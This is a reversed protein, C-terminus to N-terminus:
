RERCPFAFYYFEWAFYGENFFLLKKLFLKKRFKPQVFNLSRSELDSPKVRSLIEIGDGIIAVYDHRRGLYFNFKIKYFNFTKLTEDPMFM